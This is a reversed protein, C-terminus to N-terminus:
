QSSDREENEEKEKCSNCQQMIPVELEEISRAVHNGCDCICPYRDTIGKKYSICILAGRHLKGYVSKLKKPNSKFLNRISFM